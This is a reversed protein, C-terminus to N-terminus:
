MLEAAPQRYYMQRCSATGYSAKPAPFEVLEVEHERHTEENHLDGKTTRKKKSHECSNMNVEGGRGM